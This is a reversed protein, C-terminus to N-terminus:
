EGSRVSVFVLLQNKVRQELQGVMWDYAPRFESDIAKDVDIDTCVLVGSDEARARTEKTQITWLRM